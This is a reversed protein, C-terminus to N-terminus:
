LRLTTDVESQMSSDPAQEELQEVFPLPSFARVQLMDILKDVNSASVIIRRVCQPIFNLEVAHNLFSLLHNYFGNINLLGLPKKGFNLKAELAMCSIVELTEVGGPLAIFADANSLMHGFREYMNPVKIEMGLANGSTVKGSADQLGVSLVHSGRILTTTAVCGRLGHIGGGYVLNIKRNALAKGLECAALVFQDDNGLNSGGIVCISQFQHVPLTEAERKRKAM